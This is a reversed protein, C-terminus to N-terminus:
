FRDDDDDVLRLSPPLNPNPKKPAVVSTYPPEDDSTDTSNLTDLVKKRRKSEIKSNISVALGLLRLIGLRIEVIRTDCDDLVMVQYDISIIESSSIEYTSSFLNLIPHINDVFSICLDGEYNQYISKLTGFKIDNRDIIEMGPKLEDYYPLLSNNGQRRM